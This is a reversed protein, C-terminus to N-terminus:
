RGSGEGGSTDRGDGVFGVGWQCDSSPRARSVPGNALGRDSRPSPWPCHLHQEHEDNTDVVRVRKTPQDDEGRPDDEFRRRKAPAIEWRSYMPAPRTDTNATYPFIHRRYVYPAKVRGGCMARQGRVPSYAPPQERVQLPDENEEPVNDSESDPVVEEVEEIPVLTGAEVLREEAPEGLSNDGVILEEPRVPSLTTLTAYSGDTAVDGEADM